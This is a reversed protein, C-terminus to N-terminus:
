RIAWVKYRNNYFYKITKWRETQQKKRQKKWGSQTDKGVSRLEELVIRNCQATSLKFVRIPCYLSVRWCFCIFLAGFVPACFIFWVAEKLISVWWVTSQVPTVRSSSGATFSDVDSHGTLKLVLNFLGDNPNLLWIVSLERQLTKISIHCWCAPPINLLNIFNLM